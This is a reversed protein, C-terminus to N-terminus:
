EKKEIELGDIDVCDNEILWQLFELQESTLETQVIDNGQKFKVIAVKENVDFLDIMRKCM